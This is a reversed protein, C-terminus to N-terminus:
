CCTFFECPVDIVFVTWNSGAPNLNNGSLIQNFNRIVRRKREDDDALYPHLGQDQMVKVIDRFNKLGEIAAPIRIEESICNFRKSGTEPIVEIHSYVYYALAFVLVGDLWYNAKGLMSSSHYGHTLRQWRTLPFHRIPETPYALLRTGTHIKNVSRPFLQPSLMVLNKTPLRALSSTNLQLLRPRKSGLLRSSLMKLTVQLFPEFTAWRHSIYSMRHRGLQVGRNRMNLLKWICLHMFNCSIRRAKAQLTSM